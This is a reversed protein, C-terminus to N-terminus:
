HPKKEVDTSHTLVVSGALANGYWMEGSFKTAAIVGQIYVTNGNYPIGFSLTDARIRIEVLRISDAGTSPAVASGRWGSAASDLVVILRQAGQQSNAFGEWTGRLSQALAPSACLTTAFLGVLYRKM